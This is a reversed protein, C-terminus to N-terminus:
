RDDLNGLDNCMNNINNYSTPCHLRQENKIDVIKVAGLCIVNYFTLYLNLTANKKINRVSGVRFAM